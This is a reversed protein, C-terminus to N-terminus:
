YSNWHGASTAAAHQITFSDITVGDRDIATCTLKAGEIKLKCFHHTQTTTIVYPSYGPDPTYLPAGGGGTTIHIIDNAVCRAYYHNHGAFVIDVGYLECLPQIYNRVGSDDGHDGGASYGPEHLIIFKWLKPTTALDNELWTLQASGSSYSVYQDVVAVHVPGYDFSWYRNAVYPYPWYKVFLAGSAEHNGMCGQIPINAQVDLIGPQTRPFFQNTWDSENDGSAVWDGTFLLFTQADPDAAIASMIQDCVTNHDSPYTRTDGYALLTLDLESEDPAALFSGTYQTGGVTLRYYYESGPTLSTITHKHQHDSGYESTIINGDSYSTDTGWELTCTDTGDLQWLVMMETNNGPYILYPGKRISAIFPESSALLELDFSIDSSTGNVQHVEVALVNTGTILPSSSLSTEYFASEDGGSVTSAATTTYTITGSPMSTRFIETGNLYVVAGDDRMVRVNLSQFILADPVSFSHRFYTTIYKNNPDPGYSVVTAEDGDGYGLQAPGSAWGSDGFGPARWATGQNSGNDLYKWTSGTAVLTTPPPSTSAILEFDFSIDSSTGSSQHIEVAVVNKWTALASADLTTEYYANEDAGDVVSSALTTYTVPGAPMNSRFIEIGNLYVVAGDDRLARVTLSQYISPDTVYFTHRFYTTIYKNNPDPGYSVTTVEDGDGYGLQAPGNAWGSADFGTARWATGQDTGDDLYRWNSRSYVLTTTAADVPSVSALLLFVGLLSLFTARNMQKSEQHLRILKREPKFFLGICLGLRFFTKL